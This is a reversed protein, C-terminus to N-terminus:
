DLIHIFLSIESKKVFLFYIYYVIIVFLAITNLEGRSKMMKLILTTPAKAKVISQQV